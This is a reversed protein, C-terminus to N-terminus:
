HYFLLTSKHIEHARKPDKFIHVKPALAGNAKVFDIVYDVVLSADRVATITFSFEVADGPKIGPSQIGFDSVVIKPNPEFGLFKLGLVEHIFM